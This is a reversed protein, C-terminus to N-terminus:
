ILIRANPIWFIKRANAIITNEFFVHRYTKLAIDPFVATGLTDLEFLLDKDGFGSILQEGCKRKLLLQHDLTDRLRMPYRDARRNVSAMTHCCLRYGNSQTASWGLKELEM